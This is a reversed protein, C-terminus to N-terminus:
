KRLKEQFFALMRAWSREDDHQNYALGNVGKEDIGKVTFSHKAGGYYVMEWDAGGADLAKRFNQIAEDPIFSDQAGHCVLVSAKTRKVQEPTPGPLAGHFSVVADVDAGSFGLQLATSGGFCYGIAALREADCQPQSKLVELAAVARRVWDDVNKRVESAMAGAEQPHETTRGEGYMDAAFAIYGERALMQARQRADENLGWWEHVVLVGPRPGEIADDWALFGRCELNGHKYTVTKTQVEARVLTGQVAALIALTLIGRRM